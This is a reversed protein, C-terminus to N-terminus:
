EHGAGVKQIQAAAMVKGSKCLGGASKCRQVTMAVRRGGDETRQVRHDVGGRVKGGKWLGGASKCKQM